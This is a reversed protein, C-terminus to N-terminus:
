PLEVFKLVLVIQLLLGESWSADYLTIESKGGTEYECFTNRNNEIQAPV